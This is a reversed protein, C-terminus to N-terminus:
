QFLQPQQSKNKAKGGVIKGDGTACLPIDFAKGTKGGRAGNGNELRM